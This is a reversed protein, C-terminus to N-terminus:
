TWEDSAHWGHDGRVWVRPVTEERIRTRLALFGYFEPTRKVRTGATVRSHRRLAALDDVLTM